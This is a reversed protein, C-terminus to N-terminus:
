AQHPTRAINLVRDLAAAAADEASGRKLDALVIRVLEAFEEPKTYSRLEFSHLRDDVIRVAAALFRQEREEISRPDVESAKRPAVEPKTADSRAPARWDWWSADEAEKDAVLMPEAGTALWEMRVGAALCLRAIAEFTPATEEAIYRQLTASSVGMVEYASSRTGLLGAAKGIRTGIGERLFPVGPRKPGVPESEVYSFSKEDTEAM